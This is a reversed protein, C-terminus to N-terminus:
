LLNHYIDMSTNGGCSYYYNGSCPMDCDGKSGGSIQVDTGCWCENGKELGGVSFGLEQCLSLCNMPTNGDFYQVVADSFIPTGDDVICGWSAWGEPLNLQDDEYPPGGTTVDCNM